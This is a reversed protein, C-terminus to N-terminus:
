QLKLVQGIHLLNNKLQNVELLNEVTTNYRKALAYLTDGKQVVVNVQAVISNNETNKEATTAEEQGIILEIPKGDKSTKVSIKSNSVSKGSNALMPPTVIEQGSIPSKLILGSTFQFYKEPNVTKKDKRIEFHLHETTANGSRGGLGIPQGCKVSDGKEILIKSLHSYYTECGKEHLLTILKGYAYYTQAMTVKGSCAAYVTDGKHLKIDAGTHTRGGRSGFPSIVKGIVPCIWVPAYLCTDTKTNVPTEAANSFLICGLFVLIVAQLKKM